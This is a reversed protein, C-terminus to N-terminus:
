QKAVTLRTLSGDDELAIRDIRYPIANAIIRGSVRLDTFADTAVLLTTVRANVPDGGTTFQLEDAQDVIGYSATGNYSVPVGADKLMFSLDSASGLSM